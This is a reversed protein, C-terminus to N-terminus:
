HCRTESFENHGRGSVCRQTIRKHNIEWQGNVNTLRYSYRVAAVSDDMPTSEELTVSAFSPSEISDDSVQQEISLHSPNEQFSEGLDDLVAALPTRYNSSVATACSVWFLGPVVLFLVIKKLKM